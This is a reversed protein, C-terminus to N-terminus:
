SIELLMLLDPKKRSRVYSYNVRILSNLHVSISCVLSYTCFSNQTTQQINKIRKLFHLM